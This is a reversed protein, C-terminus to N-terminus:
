TTALRRFVFQNCGKGGACTKLQELAFGRDRYFDFIAEPPAVEFPYGGAWDVVDHWASMGRDRGYNRYYRYARTPKLMAFGYLFQVGWTLCWVLMEIARRVSKGSNVYRRKIARWVKSRRGQDNYISIFLLGNPAVRTSVNELARWMDGTHHLVGWAYVVDFAGLTELYQGDLASGQEVTWRANQAFRRRAEVTAAVSDADYDFSHV